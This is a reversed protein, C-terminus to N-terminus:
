LDAPPSPVIVENPYKIVMIIAPYRDVLHPPFFVISIPKNSIIIPKKLKDIVVVYQYLATKINRKPTPVANTKVGNIAINISHNGCLFPKTIPHTFLLAPIPNNNTPIRTGNRASIYGSVEQRIVQFTNQIIPTKTKKKVTNKILFGGETFAVNVSVSGDEGTFFIYVFRFTILTPSM